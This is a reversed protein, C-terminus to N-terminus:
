LGIAALLDATVCTQGYSRGIETLQGIRSVDDMRIQSTLLPNFRAYTCLRSQEAFVGPGALNGLEVDLPDGFVCRGLVRCVMDQQEGISGILAPPVYRLHDVLTLRDIPKGSIRVRTTGTGVSVLHLRDIGTPWGIRYEPLTATLLAILAPNNYPTVGGDIFTFTQGGLTIREPPFFTPAATSARLLQWLSVQLNCDRNTPDNYVANPNNTLPWASGTSANRMVVLLLTKLNSSGLSAPSGDTEVFLDRFMAAIADARYKARFRQWVRAPKFMRKGHLVFLGLVDAVSMGWSLCAAIIAGTSTGAILDFEEALVLDPKGRKDRLLSEIRELIGLSVCGRVGGGDLALITRPSESEIQDTIM